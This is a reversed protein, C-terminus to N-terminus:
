RWEVTVAGAVRTALNEREAGGRDEAELATNVEEVARVTCACPALRAAYKHVSAVAAIHRWVDAIDTVVRNGRSFALALERLDARLKSKQADSLCGPCGIVVANDARLWEVVRERANNRYRVYEVASARQEATGHKAVFALLVREAEDAELENVVSLKADEIPTVLAPTQHALRRALSELAIQTATTTNM